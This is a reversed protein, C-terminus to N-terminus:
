KLRKSRHVLRLISVSWFDLLSFQSPFLNDFKLWRKLLEYFCDYGCGLYRLLIYLMIESILYNNLLSWMITDVMEVVKSHVINEQYSFTKHSNNDFM